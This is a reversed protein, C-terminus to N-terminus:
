FEKRATIGIVIPYDKDQADLMNKEDLDEVSVGQVFATASLANGFPSVKINESEFKDELLKKISLETFGWYHGWRDMDFRSIPTITGAVTALLYGGPKLLYHAGEIAKKVDYIFNFTQTCIFVDYKEKPLSATNTLDKGKAYDLIDFHTEENRTSSFYKKSYSDAGVEIINSPKVGSDIIEHSAEELYNEIYYRDIPTGRDLGFVRSVPELGHLLRRDKVDDTERIYEAVSDSDVFLYNDFKYKNLVTEVDGRNKLSVTILIGSQGIEEDSHKAFFDDVEFLDVGDIEYIKSLNNTVIAGKFKSSHDTLERIVKKGLTGNGYVYVKQNKSIFDSIKGM